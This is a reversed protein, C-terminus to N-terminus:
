TIAHSMMADGRGPTAAADCIMLLRLTAAILALIKQPPLREPFCARHASNTTSVNDTVV